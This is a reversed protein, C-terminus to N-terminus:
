TTAASRLLLRGSPILKSLAAMWGPRAAVVAGGLKGAARAEETTFRHAVGAAHAARGGLAAIELRRERTVARLGSILATM